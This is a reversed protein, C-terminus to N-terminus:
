ELRYFVFGTPAKPYFRNSKAPMVEGADSVSIIQEIRAARLLLALQYQGSLVKGVADSRDNSFALLKDKKADDINLLKEIIIQNAISVDLRKYLESQSAPMARAVAAFDRVRLVVLKDSILGFLVMAVEDPKDSGTNILLSDVKQWVNPTDLSWEEVEFFKKLEVPLRSLVSEPMGHILRHFPLVILGPDPFPSLTMMIFNCPDDRSVSPCTAHREARYTLASEYRHHGDAMYLPKKALSTRIQNILEPETIAWMKHRGETNGISLNIIPKGLKAKSLLSFVEGEQDEFLALLSSTNAKLNRIQILRSKKIEPLIKEHRQVVMKDWEELRVIAIIGRRMYKKGLYTFYYDHLYIAPVDDIQLIGKDLWNSLTAAARKWKSDECKDDASELPADLRVFNYESQHYLERRLEPTLNDSPACIVRPFNEVLQQNYRVGRFPYIDAM